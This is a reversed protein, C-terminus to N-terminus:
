IGDLNKIDPIIEAITKGDFFPANMVEDVSSFDVMKEGYWTDFHYKKDKDTYYPDVGCPKDNYDWTVACCIESIRDRIIKAINHTM